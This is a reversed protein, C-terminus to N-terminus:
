KHINFKKCVAEYLSDAVLNILNYKEEIIEKSLQVEYGIDFTGKYKTGKLKDINSKSFKGKSHILSNRIECFLIMDDKWLDEDIDLKIGGNILYNIKAEYSDRGLKDLKKDILKNIIDEYSGCEIIDEFTIQEKSRLSNQNLLMTTKISDLIFEDIVTHMYVLMMKLGIILEKEQRVDFFYGAILSSSLCIEKGEEKAKAIINDSDAKYKEHDLFIVKNKYKEFLGIEKILNEFSNSNDILAQLADDASYKKCLENVIEKELIDEMYSKNKTKVTDELYGNISEMNFIYNSHSKVYIQEYNM